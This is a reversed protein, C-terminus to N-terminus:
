APTKAPPVGTIGNGTRKSAEVQKETEKIAAKAERKAKDKDAKNFDKHFKVLWVTLHSPVIGLPLEGSPEGCKKFHNVLSDNFKVFELPASQKFTYDIPVVERCQMDKIVLSGDAKYSQGGKMASRKAEGEVAKGDNVASQCANTLQDLNFGERVILRELHVNFKVITKMEVKGKQRGTGNFFPFERQAHICKMGPLERDSKWTKLPSAFPSHIRAAVLLTNLAQARRSKFM